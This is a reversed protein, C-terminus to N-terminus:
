KLQIKLKTDSRPQPPLNTNNSFDSEGWWNSATATYFQIPATIPLEVQNTVITDTPLYNTTGAVNTVVVWNTMPISLDDTAYIKFVMDPTYDAVPYDWQLVVTTRFPGGTSVSASLLLLVLLFTKM